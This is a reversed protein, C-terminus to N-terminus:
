RFRFSTSPHTPEPFRFYESERIMVWRDFPASVKIEIANATINASLIQLSSWRKKDKDKDPKVRKFPWAAKPNGEPIAPLKLSSIQQVM